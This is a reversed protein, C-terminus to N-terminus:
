RSRTQRDLPVANVRGIRFTGKSYNLWHLHDKQLLATETPLFRRDFLRYILCKIIGEHTVVLVTQGPWNEAAATLARNSREWVQLRDEGDPPRFKWGADEQDALVKPVDRGLQALTKGTWSGWDQERLRSDLTIPVQLTTNILRATRVARGADSALIRDWPYAKLIEGWERASQEGGPTLPSNKRGQIKKELNWLTKAHRLLGFRTISSANTM